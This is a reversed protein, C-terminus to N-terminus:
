KNKAEWTWIHKNEFVRLKHKQRLIFFSTECWYLDIEVSRLKRSINLRDYEGGKISSSHENGHECSGAWYLVVRFMKKIDQDRTVFLPARQETLPIFVIVAALVCIKMDPMCRLLRRVSLYQTAMHGAPLHAREIRLNSSQKNWTGIICCM